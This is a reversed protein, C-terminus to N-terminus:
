SERRSIAAVASRVAPPPFPDERKVLTRSRTFTRSQFYLAHDRRSSALPERLRRRRPDSHSLVPLFRHRHQNAASSCTAGSSRFFSMTAADDAVGAILYQPRVARQAQTWVARVKPKDPNLRNRSPRAVRLPSARGIVHDIVHHARAVQHVLVRQQIKCKAQAISPSTHTPTYRPLDNRAMAFRSYCTYPEIREFSQGFTSKNESALCIKGAPRFHRM